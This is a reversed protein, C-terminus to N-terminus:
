KGAEREERRKQQRKVIETYVKGKDAVKLYDLAEQETGPWGINEPWEFGPPPPPLIPNVNPPVRREALVM